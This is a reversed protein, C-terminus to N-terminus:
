RRMQGDFISRAAILLENLGFFFSFIILTLWGIDKMLKGKAKPTQNDGENSQEQARTSENSDMM